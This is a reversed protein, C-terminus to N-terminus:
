AAVAKGFALARDIYFRMADLEKRIDDDFAVYKLAETTADERMDIAHDRVMLVVSRNYSCDDPDTTLISAVLSTTQNEDTM